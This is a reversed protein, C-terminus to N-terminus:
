YASNESHTKKLQPQRLNPLCDRLLKSKDSSGTALFAVDSGGVILSYGLEMAATLSKPTTFVSGALKSHKRAADAVIKLANDFCGPPFPKDMDMGMRMALDDPGFFLVDVGDISAIRDANDVGTQTEIQCVLLPQAMDSHSYRRGYFDIPRRGGFSRSGISPFKVAQVIDHAQQPTDVLPVMIGTCAMDLTKGIVGQDHGPVRVISTKGILDCARVAAIIDHYDLTGHQGDIWLWDWDKGIREIIGSAPYNIGLGLQPKAKLENLFAMM